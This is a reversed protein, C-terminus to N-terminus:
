PWPSRAARASGVAYDMSTITLAFPAKAGPHDNRQRRGRGPQFRRQVRGPQYDVYQKTAAQLATLPDQPLAVPGGMTIAGTARNISIATGLYTTGPDDFRGIVLDGGANGGTEASSTNSAAFLWRGTNGSYFILQKDTAATGKIELTTSAATAAGATLKGAVALNGSVAGGTLPLLSTDTPHVHDSRAWTTGVGVAATGNILPTTSSAVPVAATVQAATQYGSPNTTAYRSTDTAHVHDARAWTTGTGVAATGDMVPTTSSAVPVAATVQAATQYGSPNTAAYRSTDTPHVHDSRALTTAVGPAATGDMVPASASYTAALAVTGTTGGGTLGNGATVGTITGGGGGTVANALVFQRTAAEMAGVPDAPLVVPASSTVRGTGKPQLRLDINADSGDVAYRPGQGAADSRLVPYNATTATQPAVVLGTGAGSNFTVGGQGQTDLDIGVHTDSGTALVRIAQGANGGYLWLSNVPTTVEPIHVLGLGGSNCFTRGTAGAAFRGPGCLWDLTNDTDNIHPGLDVYHQGYLNPADLGLNGHSHNLSTNADFQVPIYVQGSMFNNTIVNGYSTGTCHVGVNTGGTAAQINNLAVVLGISDKLEIHSHAVGDRLVCNNGVIRGKGCARVLMNGNFNDYETWLSHLELGALGNVVTAYNETYYGWNGLLSCRTLVVKESYDNAQVCKDAAVTRFGDLLLNYCKEHRLGVSGAPNSGAGGIAPGFYNCDEVVSAWCNNLWIGGMISGRYPPSTLANVSLVRVGSIHTSQDASSAIPPYAVYIAWTPLATAMARIELNRVASHKNQDGPTITVGIGDHNLWLTAGEDGVLAVSKGSWVLASGLVYDGHPVLVTGGSAPVAAFAANFAAADNTSGNGTAGYDRVSFYVTDAGGGGAGGGGLASAPVRAFRAWTPDAGPDPQNPQTVIVHGGAPVAPLIPAERIKTM